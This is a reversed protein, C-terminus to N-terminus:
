KKVKKKSEAEEAKEKEIENIYRNLAEEDLTLLPTNRRLIVVELNKGQVVEMLARLTLKITKEEDAAIEKSYNKELFEIVTKSSRGTANAKWEHYVGSFLLFLFFKM